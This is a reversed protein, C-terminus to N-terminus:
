SARDQLLSEDVAFDDLMDQWLTSQDPDATNDVYSSYCDHGCFHMAHVPSNDYWEGDIDALNAIVWRPAVVQDDHILSTSVTCTPSDCYAKLKISM